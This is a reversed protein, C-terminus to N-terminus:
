LSTMKYLIGPTFWEYDVIHDSHLDTYKYLNKLSRSPQTQDVRTTMKYLGPANDSNQKCITSARQSESEWANLIMQLLQAHNQPKASKM